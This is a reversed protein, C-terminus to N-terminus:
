TADEKGVFVTNMNKESPQAMMTGDAMTVGHFTLPCRYFLKGYISHAWVVSNKATFAAGDNFTILFVGEMGAMNFHRSVIEIAKFDGKQDVISDLKRLTKIVFADRIDDADRKAEAILRADAADVGADADILNVIIQDHMGITKFFERRMSHSTHRPQSGASKEALFAFWRKAVSRYNTLLHNYITDYAEETVSLLAAQVQAVASQGARPALYKAKVDEVAKPQRKVIMDEAKIRAWAAALPALTTLFVYEDTGKTAKKLRGPITYLTPNWYIDTVEILDHAEEIRRNLVYTLEKYVPNAIAGQEICEALQQIHGPLQEARKAWVTAEKDTIVKTGYRNIGQGRKALLDVLYATAPDFNLM